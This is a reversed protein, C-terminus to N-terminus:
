FSNIARKTTYILYAKTGFYPSKVVRAGFGMGRLRKAAGEAESKTNYEHPYDYEDVKKKMHLYYTKGDFKRVGSMGTHKRLEGM